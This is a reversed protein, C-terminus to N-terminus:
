VAAAHLQAQQRLIVVLLLQSRHLRHAAQVHTLPSSALHQGPQLDVQAHWHVAAVAGEVDLTALYGAQYVKTLTSWRATTATRLM